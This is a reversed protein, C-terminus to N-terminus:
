SSPRAAMKSKTRLGYAIGLTRENGGIVYILKFCIPGYISFNDDPFPFGLHRGPPWRPNQEFGM